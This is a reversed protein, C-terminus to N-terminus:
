RYAMLARTARTKAKSWATDDSYESKYQGIIESVSSAHHFQIIRYIGLAKLDADMQRRPGGGRAEEEQIEQPKNLELWAFFEKSLKDPSCTWDIQFAFLSQPAADEYNKVFHRYDLPWLGRRQPHYNSALIKRWDLDLEIFPRHPWPAAFEGYKAYPDIGKHVYAPDAELVATRSFEWRHCVNIQEPPIQSFDWESKPLTGNM